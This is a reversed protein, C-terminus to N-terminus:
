EPHVGGQMFVIRHETPAFVGAGALIAFAAGVATVGVISWTMWAPIGKPRPPEDIPPWRPIRVAFFSAPECSTGRCLSANVGRPAPTATIWAACRVGNTKAHALDDLSCLARGQVDIKVKAGETVTIWDAFRIRGGAIAALHHEGQAIHIKGPSVVHADLFYALDPDTSAEFTAEVQAPKAQEPEGVGAARGGDLADAAALARKARGSDKPEIRDWRAAWGRQVEAMLWAAQPLEPHARLRAEARALQREATDADLQAVAERARTLAQEIETAEASPYGRSPLPAAPEVIRVGRASAWQSLARAAEPTEEALWVVPADIM